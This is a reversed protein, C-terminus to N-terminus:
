DNDIGLELIQDYIEKPEFKCQLRYKLIFANEKEEYVSINYNNDQARFRGKPTDFELWGDFSSEDKFYEKIKFYDSLNHTEAFDECFENIFNELEWFQHYTNEDILHKFERREALIDRLEQLGSDAGPNNFVATGKFDGNTDGNQYCISWDKGFSKCWVAIQLDGDINQREIEFTSNKLLIQKLKQDIM